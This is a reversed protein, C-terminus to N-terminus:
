RTALGPKQMIPSVVHGIHEYQVKKETVLSIYIHGMHEYQVKEKPLLSAAGTGSCRSWRTALSCPVKFKQKNTKYWYGLM